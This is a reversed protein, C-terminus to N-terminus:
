QLESTHEESRPHAALTGDHHLRDPIERDGRHLLRGVHCDLRATPEIRVGSAARSCQLAVPVREDMMRLLFLRTTVHVLMSGLAQEGPEIGVQPHTTADALDVHWPIEPEKLAQPVNPVRVCELLRLQDQWCRYIWGNATAGPPSFPHLAKVM